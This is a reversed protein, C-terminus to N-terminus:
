RPKMAEWGPKGFMPRYWWTPENFFGVRRQPNEQFYGALSSLAGAEDGLQLQVYAVNLLLDRTKDVGKDGQSREMVRRASDPLKARVLTMAVYLDANLRNFPQRAKPSLAVVSDALRWARAIDPKPRAPTTQLMLECRAANFNAPFRRRLEECWREADVWQELDYTALFLRTLIVDANILYADASYASSAARAVDALRTDRTQYYLHSLSAWAGAQLNDLDKARELDQRGGALLRELEASDSTTKLLWAFYRLNGRLEYADANLSDKALARDVHTMGTELLPRVAIPDLGPVRARRYAVLGRAVSPAPWRADQGEAIAFLSDAQTWAADAAAADGAQMAGDAARRRQEGQQFTGWAKDSGTTVRAKRVTIERGVVSRINTAVLSAVSDRIRVLDSAPLRVSSAGVEAGTADELRVKIDLQDGDPAITGRVLTGAQLARAISDSPVTSARFPAVGGSSIVKLGQVGTLARIVSETLGDALYALKGDGSRDDFYLVAIQEPSLGTKKPAGGGGRTALWAGGGVLGLGAVLAGLVVPRRYWAPAAAPMQATLGRAATVRRVTSSRLSARGPSSTTDVPVALLEAFAQATPPRDAPSKGLVRFIADEVAEPVAPRVIRVSPVTDMAHRAMIAMPNKGTYPPEGALMEYLVCGLSYLDATPGVHEGAAQEPAMYVPTGVTMGTATLKSQSMDTVARAIGFDAVLAHGNSLLINEPKIDRHVIGQAHAHGLADAVELTIQIAQEVPLQPERDLLDRLSEGQVFPMVYFLLGEAAGSEYLGLIHPHQLKAAVKIERDFRESGVSAALEPHLVKIAVSRDHRADHGLYVTAMGGRGLEREIAYRDGIAAQLRALVDTV